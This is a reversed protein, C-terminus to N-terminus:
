AIIFRSRKAYYLARSVNVCHLQNVFSPGAFCPTQVKMYMLFLHNFVRRQHRRVSIILEWEYKDAYRWCGKLKDWSSWKWREWLEATSNKDDGREGSLLLLLLNFETKRASAAQISYLNATSSTICHTHSRQIIGWLPVQFSVQMM